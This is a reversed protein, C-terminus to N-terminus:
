DESAKSSSLYHISAGGPFKWNPAIENAPILVFSRLAAQPHPIQLRADDVTLYEGNGLRWLIIDLDCTRNGWRGESLRDRGLRKEIALLRELLQLPSLKTLCILAGNLFTQDAQGIPLTEHLQSIAAVVGCQESILEVAQKLIQARDGLNSGIAILVSSDTGDMNM